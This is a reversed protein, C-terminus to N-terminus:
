SNNWSKFFFSNQKSSPLCFDTHLMYCSGTPTTMWSASRTTIDWHGGLCWEPDIGMVGVCDSFHLASKEKDRLFNNVYYLWLNNKLHFKAQYLATSYKEGLCSKEKSKSMYILVSHSTINVKVCSESIFIAALSDRWFMEGALRQTRKGAWTLKGAGKHLLDGDGAGPRSVSEIHADIVEVRCLCSVQRELSTRVCQCCIFSDELQPTSGKLTHLWLICLVCM